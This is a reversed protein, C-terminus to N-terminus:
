VIGLIASVLENIIIIAYTIATNIQTEM